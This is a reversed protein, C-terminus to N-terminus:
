NQPGAAPMDCGKIICKLIISNDQTNKDIQVMSMGLNDQNAM